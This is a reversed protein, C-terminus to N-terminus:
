ATVIERPQPAFRRNYDAMSKRLVTNASDPDLAQALGLENNLRDHLLIEV